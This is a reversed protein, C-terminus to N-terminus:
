DNIQSKLQLNSWNVFCFFLLCFRLIFFTKGPVFNKIGVFMHAKRFCLTNYLDRTEASLSTLIWNQCLKWGRSIISRLIIQASIKIKIQKMTWHWEFAGESPCGLLKIFVSKPCKACFFFFLSSTKKCVFVSENKTAEEWMRPLDTQPLTKGSFYMLIVCQSGM